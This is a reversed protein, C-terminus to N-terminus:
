TEGHIVHPAYLVPIEDDSAATALAFGVAWANAGAAPDAAVAVGAAGATVSTGRAIVGGAKVRLIGGVQVTAANGNDVKFETAGFLPAGDNTAAIVTNDAAGMTVLRFAEIDAGALLSVKQGSVHM